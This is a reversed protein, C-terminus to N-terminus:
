ATRGRKEVSEGIENTLVVENSKNLLSRTLTIRNV